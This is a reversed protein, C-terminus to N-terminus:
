SPASGASPKTKGEVDFPPSRRAFSGGVADGFNVTVHDAKITPAQVPPPKAAAAREEASQPGMGIKGMMEFQKARAQIVRQGALTYRQLDAPDKPMKAQEFAKQLKQAVKSAEAVANLKVGTARMLGGKYFSQDFVIFDDVYDQMFVKLEKQTIQLDPYAVLLALHADRLSLGDARMKGRLRCCLRWIEGNDPREHIVSTGAPISPVMETPVAPEDPAAPLDEEAM